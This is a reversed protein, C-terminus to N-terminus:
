PKPVAAPIKNVLFIANQTVETKLNQVSSVGGISGAAQGYFTGNVTGQLNKTDVVNGAINAGSVTGAANFNFDGNKSWNGTWTGPQFNVTIQVKGQQNGDFSGGIYNASVNGARQADLYVLPTAVGALYYGSTTTTTTSREEGSTYSAVREFEGIAVQEDATLWVFDPHRKSGVNVYQGTIAKEFNGTGVKSTSAENANWNHSFGSVSATDSNTSYAFSKSESNGSMFHNLADDRNDYLIGEPIIEIWREKWWFGQASSYNGGGFYVPIPSGSSSFNPDTASSRSALRWSANGSVGGESLPSADPMLTVAFSGASYSQKQKSHGHSSKKDGGSVKTSDSFIAYGCWDGAGCSGSDVPTITGPLNRYSDGSGAGLLQAPNVNPAGAAPEVFDTWAGWSEVSDQSVTVKAYSRVKSWDDEHFQWSDKAFAPGSAFIAVICTAIITRNNKM